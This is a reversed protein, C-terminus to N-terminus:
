FDPMLTPIIRRGFRRYVKFDADLTWVQSDAILESMRVLCADASSMPVDGYRKMLAVIIERHAQAHFEAVVVERQWMALLAALRMPFQRLLWAAETM